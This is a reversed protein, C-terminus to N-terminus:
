PLQKGEWQQREILLAIHSPIHLDPEISHALIRLPYGDHNLTQSSPTLRLAGTCPKRSGWDLSSNPRHEM